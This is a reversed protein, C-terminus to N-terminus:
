PNKVSAIPARSQLFREVLPKWVPMGRMFLTHGDERFPPLLLLEGGGGQSRFVEHWSKVHRPAFFRDNEAYIWLTPVRATKGYSGFLEALRNPDCPEGPRTEPNGGGGGAFNIAAVMGAPNRAALAISTMGGFSQGISVIRSGDIEPLRKAYDIVQLVQEAAAAYGPPYTKSGCAGSDEPDEDIGSVGYGIRTPVWVSYGLAAFYKSAESFRARGFSQRGSNNPPRGHSLVMLPYPARGPQEFVTVTIDRAITKRYMDDFKVAVKLVREAVAASPQPTQAQALATSAAFATAALIGIGYWWTGRAM